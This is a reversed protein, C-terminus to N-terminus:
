EVTMSDTFYSKIVSKRTLPTFIIIIILFLLLLGFGTRLTRFQVYFFWPRPTEVVRGFRLLM